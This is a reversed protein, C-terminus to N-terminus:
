FYTLCQSDVEIFLFFHFCGLNETKSDTVFEVRIAWNQYLAVLRWYVETSVSGLSGEERSVSSSPAAPEMWYFHSLEVKLSADQGM